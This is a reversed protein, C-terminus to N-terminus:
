TFTRSGKSACADNNGVADRRKEFEGKSSNFPGNLNSINAILYPLPQGDNVRREFFTMRGWRAAKYNHFIGFSEHVIRAPYGSNMNPSLPPTLHPQFVGNVHHIKM